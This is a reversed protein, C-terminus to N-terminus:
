ASKETRTVVRCDHRVVRWQLPVGEDTFQYQGPHMREHGPFGLARAQAMHSLEPAEKSSGNVFRLPPLARNFAGSEFLSKPGEAGFRM